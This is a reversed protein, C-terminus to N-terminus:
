ISCGGIPPLTKYMKELHVFNDSIRLLEVEHLICVLTHECDTHEMYADNLCSGLMSPCLHVPNKKTRPEDLFVARGAIFAHLCSVTKVEDRKVWFGFVAWEICDPDPNSIDLVLLQFPM